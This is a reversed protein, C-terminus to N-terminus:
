LMVVADIVRGDLDLGSTARVTTRASNRRLVGSGAKPVESGAGGAGISVCQADIVGPADIRATRTGIDWGVEIPRYLPEHRHEVLCDFINFISEEPQDDASLIKLIAERQTDLDAVFAAQRHWDVFSRAKALTALRKRVERAVEAPGAAGALELRLRRKLAADGGSIELLLEALREAGLAELNKANLTKKSAM